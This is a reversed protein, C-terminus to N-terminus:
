LFRQLAHRKDMKMDMGGVRNQVAKSLRRFQNRPYFLQAHRGYGQGVVAGHKARDIKVLCGIFGSNLRDDAQFGVQRRAAAKIFIDLFIAPREVEQKQCFVHGTVM